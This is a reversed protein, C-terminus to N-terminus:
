KDKDDKENSVESSKLEHIYQFFTKAKMKRIEIAEEDIYRGHGRSKYDSMLDYRSNSVYHYSILRNSVGHKNLSDAQDHSEAFTVFFIKTM